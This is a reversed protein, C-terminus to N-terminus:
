YQEIIAFAVAFKQEHAISLQIKRQQWEPMQLSPHHYIIVPKGKDDNLISVAHWGFQKGIGVGMAKSIAEKAAFRGAIYELRRRPALPLRDREQETLIREVIRPTREIVKEIRSLEVIDTGIGIIM